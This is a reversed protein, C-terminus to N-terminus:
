QNGRYRELIAALFPVWVDPPELSIKVQLDLMEWFVAHAAQKLPPESQRGREMWAMAGARDRRRAADLALEGYLTIPEIRGKVLLSPRKAIVRAARNMVPRIGWQRARHYLALLRDDDLAEAPILSWRSLHLRDLDVRDP